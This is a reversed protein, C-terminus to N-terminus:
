KHWKIRAMTECTNAENAKLLLKVTTFASKELESGVAVSMYYLLLKVTTFLYMQLESGVAVSM